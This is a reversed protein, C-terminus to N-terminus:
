DENMPNECSEESRQRSTARPSNNGRTVFDLISGQTARPRSQSGEGRGRVTKRGRKPENEANMVNREKGPTVSMEMTPSVTLQRKRMKPTQFEEALRELRGVATVPSLKETSANIEKVGQTQPYELLEVRQGRYRKEICNKAQHWVFEAGDVRVRDHVLRPTGRWNGEMKVQLLVDFLIARAKRTRMSFDQKINKCKRERAREWIAEKTAYRAFKVVIKSTPYIAHARVIEEDKIKIGCREEIMQIVAGRVRDKEMEPLGLFVLNDRRDRDERDAFRRNVEEERELNYERRERREKELEEKLEMVRRELREIADEEKKSTPNMNKTLDLLFVTLGIVVCCVAGM